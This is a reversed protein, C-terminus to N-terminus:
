RGFKMWGTEGKRRAGLSELYEDVVKKDSETLSGTNPYSQVYRTSDIQQKSTCILIPAKLGEDRIFKTIENGAKKNKRLVGKPDVELRIQNSIFRFNNPGDNKKLYDTFFINFYCGPASHL